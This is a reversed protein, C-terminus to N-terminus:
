IIGQRRAISLTERRNRAQLKEYIKKIHSHVTHSCISLGGAVEKYSFGQEIQKMIDRERRTLLDPAPDPYEQFESIVARAIRPSMPAGGGQLEHLAEVIERPTASKTIYGTAGARLAKFVTERDSYVSHVMVDIEPEGSKVQRIFDIGTMGPLGLDCLILEPSKLSLAVLAAEANAFCGVVEIDKEGALLVNLSALLQEDDEIIFIRM